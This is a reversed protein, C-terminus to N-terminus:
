FGCKSQAKDLPPGLESPALTGNTQIFVNLSNNQKSSAGVKELFNLCNPDRTPEGGKVIILDLDHAESLINNLLSDSAKSIKSFTETFNRFSLGEM